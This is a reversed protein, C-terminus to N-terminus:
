MEKHKEPLLNEKIECISSKLKNRFSLKYSLLPNLKTSLLCAFM